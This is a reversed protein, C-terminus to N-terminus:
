NLFKKGKDQYYQITESSSTKEEKKKQIANNDSFFYQKPQKAEMITEQILKSPKEMLSNNNKM